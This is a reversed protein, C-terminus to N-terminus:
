NEVLKAYRFIRVDSSLDECTYLILDASYDTIKTGEEEKYIAYIYKRQNWDIEITDGIKSKPLNYFSNKLRYPISWSLYGFRHAALITPEKRDFPTGLNPVRWVGKKLADELSSEPAENIITNIGAASIILRNEKPLTADKVPQYISVKHAPVQPQSSVTEAIVQANKNIGMVSAGWYYFSPVYAITLFAIGAVALIKARKQLVEVRDFALTASASEEL